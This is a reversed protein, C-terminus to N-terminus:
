FKEFLAINEIHYTHSFMDISLLKKIEFNKGIILRLDRALTAPNCSVYIIKKINYKDINDFISKDCGKRPPDLILIDPNYKKVIRDFCNEVKDNLIIFNNINNLKANEIGDLVADKISEVGIVYKSQNALYLGISGTGSYADFIIEKGTLNCFEKIKDYLVVAQESNIQFFSKLSIKYQLDKFREIIYNQGWLLKDEKGLITNGKNDNINQIIGKVESYKKTIESIFDKINHFEGKKTVFGILVQNTYLSHRIIVHRLFGKNTKEDYINLNNKVIFKKIDKFISNILESQIYCKEFEVIEHSKLSYFGAKIRNNEFKFPIQVKNRYFYNNKSPIIGKYVNKIKELTINGIKNITDIVIKEKQKLQELYDLNMWQCGGCYNVVNCKANVRKSSPSIIEKILGRAYNKKVSIIEIKLIDEPLSNPVFIVLDNYKGIGEGGLALNEIKINIIDKNKINM